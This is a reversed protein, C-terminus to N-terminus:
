STIHCQTSGFSRSLELVELGHRILSILFSSLGLLSTCLLAQTFQSLKLSQVLSRSTRNEMTLGQAWWPGVVGFFM